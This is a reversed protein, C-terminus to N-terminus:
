VRMSAAGRRAVKGVVVEEPVMASSTGCRKHTEM